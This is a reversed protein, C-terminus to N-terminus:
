RMPRPSHSKRARPALKRPIKRTSFGPSRQSHRQSRDGSGLILSLHAREHRHRITRARRLAKATTSLASQLARTETQLTQRSALFYQNLESAEALKLRAMAAALENPATSAVASAVQAAYRATIEATGRSQFLAHRGKLADLLHQRMAADQTLALQRECAQLAALAKRATSPERKEAKRTEPTQQSPRELL